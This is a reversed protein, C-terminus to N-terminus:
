GNNKPVLIKNIQNNTYTIKGIEHQNSDNRKRFLSIIFKFIGTEEEKKPTALEMTEWGFHKALLNLITTKGSGNAGTLITVNPHLDIDIKEFQKWSQICISKFVM